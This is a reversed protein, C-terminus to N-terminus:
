EWALSLLTLLLPLLVPVTIFIISLIIIVWKRKTENWVFFYCKFMCYLNCSIASGYFWLVENFCTIHLSQITCIVKNGKWDLNAWIIGGISLLLCFFSFLSLLCRHLNFIREGKKRKLELFVVNFLIFLSGIISLINGALALKGLDM